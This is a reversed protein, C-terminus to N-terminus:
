ERNDKEGREVRSGVEEQKVTDTASTTRDARDWHDIIM